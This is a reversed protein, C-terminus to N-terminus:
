VTKEQVERTTWHNLIQWDIRPNCTPDRTHSSGVHRPTVLGLLWLWHTQELAQRGTATVSGPRRPAQAGCCSFPRCPCCRRPRSSCCGRSGGCSSLPCHSRRHRHSSCGQKRWLLHSPLSRVRLSPFLLLGQEQLWLVGSGQM